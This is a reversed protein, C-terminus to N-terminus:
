KKRADWIQEINMGCIKCIVVEGKFLHNQVHKIFTSYKDPAYEQEDIFIRVDNYHSYGKQKGDQFMYIKSNKSKTDFYILVNGNVHNWVHEFESKKKELGNM